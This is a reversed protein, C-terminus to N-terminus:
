DSQELPQQNAFVRYHGAIDWGDRSLRHHQCRWLAIPVAACRWQVAFLLPSPVYNLTTTHSSGGIGRAKALAFADNASLSDPMAGLWFAHLKWTQSQHGDVEYASASLPVHSLTGNQDELLVVDAYATRWALKAPTDAYLVDQTPAFNIIQPPKITV